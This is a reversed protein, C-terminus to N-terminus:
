QDGDPQRSVPVSSALLQDKNKNALNNGYYFTMVMIWVNGLTSGFSNLVDKNGVPIEIFYLGGMHLFFMATVVGALINPMLNRQESSRRSNSTIM